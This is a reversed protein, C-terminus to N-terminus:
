PHYMLDQEGELAGACIQDESIVSDLIGPIKDMGSLRLWDSAPLIGDGEERSEPINMRYLM